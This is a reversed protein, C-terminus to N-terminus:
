NGSEKIVKATQSENYKGRAWVTQKGEKKKHKIKEEEIEEKRRQRKRIRM